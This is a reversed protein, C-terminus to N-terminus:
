IVFSAQPFSAHWGYAIISTLKAGNIFISQVYMTPKLPVSSNLLKTMFLCSSNTLTVFVQFSSQSKQSLDEDQSIMLFTM